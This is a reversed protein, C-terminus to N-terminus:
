EVHFPTNLCLDFIRLHLDQCLERDKGSLGCGVHTVERVGSFKKRKGAADVGLKRGVIGMGHGRDELHCLLVVAGGELKLSQMAHAFRQVVDYVGLRVCSAADVRRNSCM